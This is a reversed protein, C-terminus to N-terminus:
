EEIYAIARCPAGDSDKVKIPLCAFLFLDDGCEALNCLNEINIVDCERFLKNHRVLKTDSIPDLGITDFGIGKKKGSKAQLIFWDLVEDDICPYDGFYAPTGWKGDWGSYFLIFEADKIKNGYRNLHDMSILDGESLGSVDIVLAQGTFQSVPFDDLTKGAEFLHAPPDMHTGTHSFFCILTEKFGDKEYTNGVEFIPPKMGPYVPMDTSIKHTLDIIKM